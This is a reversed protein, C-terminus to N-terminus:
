RYSRKTKYSIFDEWGKVTGHPTQDFTIEKKPVSIKFLHQKGAGVPRIGQGKPSAPPRSAPCLWRLAGRGGGPWLPWGSYGSRVHSPSQKRCFPMSYKFRYVFRGIPIQM